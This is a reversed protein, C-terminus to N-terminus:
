QPFHLPFIQLASCIPSDINNKILPSFRRHCTNNLEWISPIWKMISNTESSQHREVQNNLIHYHKGIFLQLHPFNGFHTVSTKILNWSRWSVCVYLKQKIQISENPLFTPVTSFITLTSFLIISQTFNCLIVNLLGFHLLM